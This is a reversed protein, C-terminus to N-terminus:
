YCNITGSYCNIEVFDTDVMGSSFVDMFASFVGVWDMLLTCFVSSEIHWFCSEGGNSLVLEWSCLRYILVAVSWCYSETIVVSTSLLKPISHWEGSIFSENVGSYDPIVSFPPMTYFKVSRSLDYVSLCSILVGNCFSYSFRESFLTKSSFCSSIRVSFRDWNSCFNSSVGKSFSDRIFCFNSSVGEYFACTSSKTVSFISELIIM